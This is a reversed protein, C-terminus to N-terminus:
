GNGERYGKGRMCKRFRDGVRSENTVQSSYAMPAGKNGAPDYLFGSSRACAELDRGMKAPSTKKRVWETRVVTCGALFGLALAAAFLKSLIPM